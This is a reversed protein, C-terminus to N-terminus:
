KENLRKFKRRKRKTLMQQYKPYYPDDENPREITGSSVSAKGENLRKVIKFKEAVIGPFNPNTVNDDIDCTYGSPLYRKIMKKYLANRGDNKVGHFTIGDYNFHSVFDQLIRMSTSFVKFENGTGTADNSTIMNGHGDDGIFFGVEMYNPYQEDPKALWLYTINNDTKFIAIHKFYRKMNNYLRNQSLDDKWSSKYPYGTSDFAETLFHKFTM